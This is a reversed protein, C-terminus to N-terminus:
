LKSCLFLNRCLVECPSLSNFVKKASHDEHVKPLTRELRKRTSEHAEVICAHQRKQIKNPGNTASDIERQKNPRKMTKLKCPM